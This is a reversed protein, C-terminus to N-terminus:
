FILLYTSFLKTCLIHFSSFFPSSLVSILPLNVFSPIIFKIVLVNIGFLGMALSFVVFVIFGRSLDGDFVLTVLNGAFGACFLLTMGLLYYDGMTFSNSKM